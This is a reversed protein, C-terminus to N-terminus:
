LCPCALVDDSGRGDGHANVRARPLVATIWPHLPRAFPTSLSCAHRVVLAAVFELGDAAALAAAPQGSAGTVGVATSLAAAAAAGYVAAPAAASM